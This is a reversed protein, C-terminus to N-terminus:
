ATSYANRDIGLKPAAQFLSKARYNTFDPGEELAEDYLREVFAREDETRAQGMLYSATRTLDQEWAAARNASRMSKVFTSALWSAIRTPGANYAAAALGLNGFRSSLEALFKASEPLAQQPDFPDALGREAATGPMFQAIGQAGAPSTVGLRLSSERWILRTFFGTPLGNAAASKEIIGCLTQAM